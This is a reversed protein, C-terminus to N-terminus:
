LMGCKILWRKIVTNAEEAKKDKMVFLIGDREIGGKIAFGEPINSKPCLKKVTQFSSGVGYGANTNFPLITKNRLDYQQLFRKVPPPLQMGWTPFGVFVVDYKAMSDIKTKLPPLYGTKNEREVQAVMEHYDAPYPKEVEIAVLDGGVWNRIMEAIVKTNNTRSLYVILIKKGMIAPRSEAANTQARSCVIFFCLTTVLLGLTIHIKNKLNQRIHETSFDFCEIPSDTRWVM